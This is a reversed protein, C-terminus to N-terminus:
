IINKPISLINPELWNCICFLKQLKSRNEKADENSLELNKYLIEIFKGTSSYGIDYYQINNKQLMKKVKNLKKM